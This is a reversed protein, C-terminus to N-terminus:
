PTVPRTPVCRVNRRPPTTRSGTMQKANTSHQSPEALRAGESGARFPGRIEEHADQLVEAQYVEGMGGEGIKASITYPGLTTDPQLPM